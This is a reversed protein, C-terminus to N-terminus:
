LNVFLHLWASSRNLTPHQTRQLQHLNHLLPLPFHKWTSLFTVDAHYLFPISYPTHHSKCKHVCSHLTSNCPSCLKLVQLKIGQHLQFSTNLQLFALQVLNVSLYFLHKVLLHYEFHLRFLVHLFPSFLTSLKNGPPLPYQSPKLM